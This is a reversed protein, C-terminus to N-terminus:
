GMIRHLRARDRVWIYCAIRDFDGEGWRIPERRLEWARVPIIQGCQSAEEAFGGDDPM